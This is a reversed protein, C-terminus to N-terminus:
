GSLFVVVLVRLVSIALMAIFLITRQSFTKKNIHTLGKEIYGTFCEVAPKGMSNFATLLPHQWKYSLMKMLLLLFLIDTAVLFLHVASLILNTFIGM